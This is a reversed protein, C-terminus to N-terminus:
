THSHVYDQFIFLQRFRWLGAAFVAAIAAVALAALAWAGITAFRLGARCHPCSKTHTNFRDFVVERPPLPPLDDASRPLVPLAAGFRDLWRRWAGVAADASAPMYYQRPWSAHDGRSYLTQGAVAMLITDGDMIPNRNLVHQIAPVPMIVHDIIWNVFWPLQPTPPRVEKSGKPGVFSMIVRSAGKATPVAYLLMAVNPTFRYKVLSPPHFEFSYGRMGTATAGGAAAEAEMKFGDKSVPGAPAVAMRQDSERDGMVGHHSQPVHSPDTMNELLIDYSLPSDRQFWPAKLEWGGEALESALSSPRSAGPESSAAWGAPSSDGWVWLMGQAVQTPYAKVCARPSAIATALAKEDGIQPISTCNGDPGWRWGHYTCQIEGSEHIRGESLPALRHPCLDEFCRWAGGKDAWLVLRAGQLQVANPAKSDLYEIAAVPYWTRRWDFLDSSADPAEAAASDPARGAAAGDPASAVEPTRAAPAEVAAAFAPALRQARRSHSRLSLAVHLSTRLRIGGRTCHVRTSSNAIQM